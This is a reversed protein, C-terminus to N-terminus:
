DVTITLASVAFSPTIGNSIALNATLAGKLLLNGAGSANTGIGFHSVNSSGGTCAPFSLTVANTASNGSITWGSTNRNISIRAYSTYTAESTTQNGTEGPDATHLSVYFVGNSSSGRLGTADGINPINVNTFILKLLDTEFADTASM